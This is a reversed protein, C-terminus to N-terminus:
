SATRGAKLADCRRNSRREERAAARRRVVGKQALRALLDAVADSQEIWVIIQEIEGRLGSPMRMATAHLLSRLLALTRPPVRVGERGERLGFDRLYTKGRGCWRMSFDPQSRMLGLDGMARYAKMLEYGIM